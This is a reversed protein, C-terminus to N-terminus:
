SDTQHPIGYKDGTCRLPNTKKTRQRQLLAGHRDLLLVDSSKFEAKIEDFTASVATSYACAAILFIAFKDSSLKQWNPLTLFLHEAIRRFPSGSMPGSDYVRASRVVARLRDAEM